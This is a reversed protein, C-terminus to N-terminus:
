AGRQFPLSPSNILSCVDAHQHRRTRQRTDGSCPMACWRACSRNFVSRELQSDSGSIHVVADSQPVSPPPATLRLPAALTAHLDSMSRHTFTHLSPLFQVHPTSIVCHYQEFRPQKRGVTDSKPELDSHRWPIPLFSAILVNSRSGSTACAGVSAHPIFRLYVINRM